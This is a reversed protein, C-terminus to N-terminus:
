MIKSSKKKVTGKAVNATDNETTSKLEVATKPSASMEKKKEYFQKITLALYVILMIAGVVIFVIGITLGLMAAGNLKATSDISLSIDNLAYAILGGVFIIAGILMFTLGVTFFKKMVKRRKKIHDFLIFFYNNRVINFQNIDDMFSCSFM